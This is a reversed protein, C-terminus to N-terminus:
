ESGVVPIITSEVVTGVQPSSVQSVSTVRGEKDSTHGEEVTM